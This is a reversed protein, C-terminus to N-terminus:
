SLSDLEEETGGDGAILWLIRDLDKWDAYGVEITGGRGKQKIKVQASLRRRLRDEVEQMNPDLAPAAGAGRPVRGIGLLRDAQLAADRVSLGRRLISRFLRLRAREDDIGVLVKGHGEELRGQRISDQMLPPLNLLRMSNSVASRSKGVREAVQEQTLSFERVLRSYAEAADIPNIDERQLNEVLALELMEQDSAERMVVPVRSLGVRRAAELRREGAILELTNGSKRVILPQIIGHTRISEVLEELGEERAQTRPQYQNPHVRELPVEQVSSETEALLGTPILSRLGKRSEM